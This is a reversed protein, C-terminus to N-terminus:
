KKRKRAAADLDDIRASLGRVQDRLDKVVNKLDVQNEAIAKIGKLTLMSIEDPDRRASHGSSSSRGGGRRAGGGASSPELAPIDEDSDKDSASGASHHDDHDGAGLDMITPGGRGRGRGRSGMGSIMSKMRCGPCDPDDCDGGGDIGESEKKASEKFEEFTKNLSAVLEDGVESELVVDVWADKYYWPRNPETVGKEFLVMNTRDSGAGIILGIKGKTVDMSDAWNTPGTDDDARIDITEKVRVFKGNGLSSEKGINAHFSMGAGM